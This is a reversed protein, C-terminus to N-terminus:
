KLIIQRSGVTDVEYHIGTTAILADGAYTDGTSAVRELTFLMQDGIKRGAGSIVVIDTRIFEYRTDFPEDASDITTVADLTANDIGFSYVLRWQVNDTGSPATIGQWHVHFTFDSGEKYDHQLEFSGHVKEGVDFGYTEIATDAGNEDLFTVIDPQSSSPRALLAAGLNIDKWVTATGDFTLTGDEEFKSANTGDGFYGPYNNDAGTATSYIGYTTSTGATDGIASCYAGYTTRTGADTSGTQAGRLYAGYVTITGTTTHARDVQSSAYFAYFDANNATKVADENVFAKLGYIAGNGTTRTDHYSFVAGSTDPHVTTGYGYIFGTALM